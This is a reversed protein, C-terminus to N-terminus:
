SRSKPNPRSQATPQFRLTSVLREASALVASSRARKLPMAVNALSRGDTVFWERIIQDEDMDFTGAVIAMNGDVTHAEDFPRSAWQQDHLLEILGDKTLPFPGSGQARVHLQVGHEFSCLYVGLTEQLSPDEWGPAISWEDAADLVIAHGAVAIRM